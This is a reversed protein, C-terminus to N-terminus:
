LFREPYLERLIYEKNIRLEDPLTRLDFESNLDWIQCGTENDIYTKAGRKYIRMEGVNLPEMNKLVYYPHIAVNFGEGGTRVSPYIVGAFRGKNVLMETFIASILYDFDHPTIEKAFENALFNTAKISKEALVHPITKLFNSFFQRQEKAYSNERRFGEHHIVSVFEMDKIVKWKSVTILQEGESNLDKMLPVTEFLGIIRPLNLEEPTPNESVICGYFMTNNPTSARQFTTNFEAPKFSIHSIKRFREENYNVRTRQITKGSHLTMKIYGVEGFQNLLYKIDGIPYSSLNLSQLIKLIEMLKNM